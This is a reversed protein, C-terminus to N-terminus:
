CCLMAMGTLHLPEGELYPGPPLSTLENSRLSLRTLSTLAVICAPVAGGLSDEISLNCLAPAQHLLAQMAAESVETVGEVEDDGRTFCSCLHLSTLDPAQGGALAAPLHCNHMEVRKVPQGAPLLPLLAGVDTRSRPRHVGEGWVRMVAHTRDLRLTGDLFQAFVM